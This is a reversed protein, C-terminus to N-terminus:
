FVLLMKFSRLELIKINKMQFLLLHVLIAQVHVEFGGKILDKVTQPTAAVRNEGEQAEKLVGIIM